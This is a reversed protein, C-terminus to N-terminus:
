LTLYNLSFTVNPDFRNPTRKYLILSGSVPSNWIYKRKLLGFFLQADLYCNLQTFKIKKKNKSNYTIEYNKLFESKNKKIQNKSDLTLNKFLFFKIKWSTKIKKKKLRLDYNIKAQDFSNDIEQIKYKDKHYFYKKLKLDNIKTKKLFSETTLNNRLDISKGGILNKYIINKSKKKYIQMYTAQAIFKNLKHFKGYIKYTGGAPFFIKPKITNLNQKLGNLCNNIIKEKEKKRDINLFCQPYESAAGVGYCFIDVGSFFKNKIFKNVKELDKVSLPNDVNNYFIKKTDLCKIIISTDLDYNIQEDVGSSNSSMQPIISVQFENQFTYKKWPDLEIIEKFGIKELRKKLTKIKFNKILIKQKNKKLVKLTKDDFHDCHLHSIYIYDPKVLKKTLDYSIPFSFWGNDKTVGIWPDCFLLNKKFETSIFSNCYHTIKM